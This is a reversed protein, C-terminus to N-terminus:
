SDLRRGAEPESSPTRFLGELRALLRDVLANQAKLHAGLAEELAEFQAAKLKNLAEILLEDQARMYDRLSKCLVDITEPDIV